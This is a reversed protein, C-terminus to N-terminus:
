DLEVSGFSEVNNVSPRYYNYASLSTYIYQKANFPQKAFSIYRYKDINLGQIVM